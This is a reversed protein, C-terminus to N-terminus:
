QEAVFSFNDLGFWGLGTGSGLGTDHAQVEGSTLVRLLGVRYVAVATDSAAVFQQQIYAPRFGEPLTFITANDTGDKVLGRLYVRGDPDKYYGAPAFGSGFDVWSNQLTPATWKPTFRLLRHRKETSM